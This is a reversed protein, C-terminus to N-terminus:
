GAVESFALVARESQTFHWPGRTEAALGWRSWAASRRVLIIATSEALRDDDIRKSESLGFFVKERGRKNDAFSVIHIGAEHVYLQWPETAKLKM